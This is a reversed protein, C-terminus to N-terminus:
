PRCVATEGCNGDATVSAFTQPQTAASLIAARAAIRGTGREPVAAIL